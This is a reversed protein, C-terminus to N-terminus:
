EEAAIPLSFSFESGDHLKSKVAMTGQHEKIIESSIYLGMGLGSASYKKDEVRFFRDFIKKQNNPSLGIGKDRICVCVMAEKIYVNVDIEKNDPSYKVANNVLNMFVQELREANGKVMLRPTIDSNFKYKPYIHIANEVSSRILESIDLLEKSFELKGAQIKSVDLLDNILHQLKIISSNAKVIYNRIMEPLEPYEGLLQLYGKLSTLPTKLEHSAVSIFEDKKEMEQKQDEIDTATGMWGALAGKEDFFPEGKVKHWRYSNDQFRLLRYQAEFPAREAIAKGWMQVTQELDDPHIFKRWTKVAVDAGVGTYEYWKQNFYVGQGDQNATWVMVPINDALFKFHERSILLANTRNRVQEELDEMARATERRAEELERNKDRLEQEAKKQISLDTLIISLAAGEDLELTTFSLLFPIVEGDSRCIPLEGKSDSEWGSKMLKRYQEEYRPLIFDRFSRGIAQALPVGVMSAFQSNCYLIVEDKNLTVAGEKMKEIFVRYTQDSSKLSYLQHGEGNEVVIADVQGTRIAHITEEAESLKHRLDELEKILPNNDKVKRDM